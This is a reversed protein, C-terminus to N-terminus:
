LWDMKWLAANDRAIVGELTTSCPIAVQHRHAFRCAHTGAFKDCHEARSPSRCRLPESAGDSRLGTSCSSYPDNANRRLPKFTSTCLKRVHILLDINHLESPFLFGCCTLLRVHAM